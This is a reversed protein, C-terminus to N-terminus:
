EEAVLDSEVDAPECRPLEALLAEESLVFGAARSEVGQLGGRLIWAEVNRPNGWAEPPVESSELYSALDRLRPLHRPDVALVAHAFNNELADRLFGVPPTGEELYRALSDLSELFPALAGEAEPLVDGVQGSPALRARRPLLLRTAATFPGGVSARLGPARQGSM